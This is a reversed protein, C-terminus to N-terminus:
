CNISRVIGFGLGKGRAICDYTLEACEMYLGLM